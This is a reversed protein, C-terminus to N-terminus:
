YECDVLYMHNSVSAGPARRPGNEGRKRKRSADDLSSRFEALLAKTANYAIYELILSNVDAEVDEHATRNDAM